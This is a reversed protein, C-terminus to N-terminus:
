LHAFLGDVPGFHPLQAAHYARTDGPFLWRVGSFEALYAIAPVNRIVGSSTEPSSDWHLGEFPTIRIGKIEIPQLAKPILIKEAPLGAEAQVLSLIAEPVIWCIPLHRSARLLSFDLHDAHSHTLLVFSLGRLDHTVDMEPAQPLRYKLTLPDIAWHVNGTRLLYNASYMLWARDENGPVRWEAIMQSWLAPYHAIAEARRLAIRQQRANFHEM